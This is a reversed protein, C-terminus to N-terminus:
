IRKINNLVGDNEKEVDNKEKIEKIEKLKRIEEEEEKEDQEIEEKSRKKPPTLSRMLEKSLLNSTGKTRPQLIKFGCVLNEDVCMMAGANNFQGCYNPASFVTVLQRNAFFQYGYEVVQHARCVLDIDLKKIYESVIDANFIVSVGRENDGWGNVDKDPDSWLLDCLLGRDPVETPRVIKKIKDLSTLDPSLGGHMCLIKDDILASVPLCNFCDSFKKWIKIGYRRKCEDFFGYARNINESEHNGRLLFFNDKYKIKYALLLSITEVSNKGRDVYDGLFLYNTKPPTGGFEFLRLLDSFQGHTDGCINLPSSIELLVPEEMFIETAKICLYKIEQPTLININGSIPNNSSENDPSKKISPNLKTIIEDLNIEEKFQTIKLNSSLLSSLDNEEKEETNSM